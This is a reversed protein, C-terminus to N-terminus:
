QTTTAEREDHESVDQFSSSDSEIDSSAPDEDSESSHFNSSTTDEEDSCEWDESDSNYELIFFCPRTIWTTLVRDQGYPFTYKSLDIHLRGGKSM